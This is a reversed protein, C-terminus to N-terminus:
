SQVHQTRGHAQAFVPSSAGAQAVERAAALLSPLCRDMYADTLRFAPGAVCLAGVPVTTGPHVVPAAVAATGAEYTERIKAHGSRRAARLYRLVEASTRPAKPGYGRGDFGQRAVLHMAEEEPLCSLWAHGISTAALYVEAGEDPNYLLGRKAGQSKAVRLLRRGDAVAMTVLEGTAEALGDLSPQITSTFGAAALYTFGLAVVKATLRYRGGEYEQRVYGEERLDALLRHTASRPITLRDAIESLPMGAAQTALLEIIGLARDM